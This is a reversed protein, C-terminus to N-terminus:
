IVVTIGVSMNVWPIIIVIWYSHQGMINSTIGVAM